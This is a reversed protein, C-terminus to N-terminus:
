KAVHPSPTHACALTHAHSKSRNGLWLHFGPRLLFALSFSRRVTGYIVVTLTITGRIHEVIAKVTHLAASTSRHVAKAPIEPVLLLLCTSPSLITEYSWRLNCIWQKKEEAARSSEGKGSLSVEQGMVVVPLSLAESFLCKAMLCPCATAICAEGAIFLILLPFQAKSDEQEGFCTCPWLLVILALCAPVIVWSTLHKGQLHLNSSVLKSLSVM